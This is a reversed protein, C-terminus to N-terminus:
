TLKPLSEELLQAKYIACPMSLPLPEGIPISILPGGCLVVAYAGVLAILDAYSIVGEAATGQIKLM